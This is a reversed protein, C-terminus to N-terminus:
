RYNAKDNKGGFKSNIAKTLINVLTTPVSKPIHDHLFYKGVVGYFGFVWVIFIPYQFVPLLALLLPRTKHNESSLQRLSAPTISHM